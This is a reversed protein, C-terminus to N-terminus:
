CYMCMCEDVVWDIVVWVLRKFLEINEGFVVFVDVVKVGDGVVVGVDVDIVLVIVVYCLEFECVLVVEFYGIMNVLNCGVVVFWQSEVCIFFWLGQIVVMIGGDVVGFLGIVVVWLMFCYLDVFVVYVGGFDFYIDVCGSICDVLQDFVVVVGFEFEFDLSGVVCLGFVWWVGFVCLVWMNVWYLVVYVLYQYYVGYCFLFVVDYVGIIGIM